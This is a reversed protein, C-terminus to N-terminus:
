KLHSNQAELQQITSYGTNTLGVVLLQVQTNERAQNQNIMEQLYIILHEWASLTSLKRSLKMHTSREGYGEWPGEKRM